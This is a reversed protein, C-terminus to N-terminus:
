GIVLLEASYSNRGAINEAVCTYNATHEELIPDISLLNLKKGINTVTYSQRNVITDLPQNNRLWSFKIPMDGLSIGCQVNVSEGM